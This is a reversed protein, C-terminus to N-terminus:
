KLPVVPIDRVVRDGAPRGSQVRPFRSLNEDPRVATGLYVQIRPSVPCPGAPQASGGARIYNLSGYKPFRRRGGSPGAGATLRGGMALSVGGGVQRVAAPPGLRGSLFNPQFGVSWCAAPPHFRGAARNARAAVPSPTTPPITQSM